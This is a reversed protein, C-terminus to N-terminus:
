WDAKAQEIRDKSHSVFNWWIHREGLPAGGIQMIRAQTHARLEPQQGAELVVMSQAEIPQDDLTVRGSVVYVAREEEVEPIPLLSNPELECHLYYLPSYTKVPSNQGFAEGAILRMWVGGREVIPLRDQPYHFFEPEIEEQEQPLAVWIQIAHIAHEEQRVAMDTRESHVIGKGATMWNVAGPEILQETGLSDRHMLSGDFLYTVTALNVHPHPRVDIGEGAKFHAPGLHDFFILPGVMRQKAYPLVRRVSFGGLDRERPIIHM